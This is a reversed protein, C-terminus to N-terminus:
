FEPQSDLKTLLPGINHLLDYVPVNYTKYVKEARLTVNIIWKKLIKNDPFRTYFNALISHLACIAKGCEEIPIITDGTTCSCWGFVHELQEGLTVVEDGTKDLIDDDLSFNLFGGYKSGFAMQLPFSLLYIESSPKYNPCSKLSIM